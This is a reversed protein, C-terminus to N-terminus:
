LTDAKGGQAGDILGAATRRVGERAAHECRPISKTQDIRLPQLVLARVGFVLSQPPYILRTVAPHPTRREPRMPQKAVRLSLFQTSKTLLDDPHEGIRSNHGGDYEPQLISTQKKGGERCRDRADEHEPMKRSPRVNRSRSHGLHPVKHHTKESTCLTPSSGHYESIVMTPAWGTTSTSFTITTRTITGM